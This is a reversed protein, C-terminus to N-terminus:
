RSLDAGRLIVLNRSASVMALTNPVTAVLRYGWGTVDQLGTEGLPVFTDSDYIVLTDNCVGNTQGVRCVAAFVRRRAEDIALTGIGVVRTYNPERRPVLPLTGPWGLGALDLVAGTDAYARGGAVQFTMNFPYLGMYPHSLPKGLSRGIRQSPYTNESFSMATNSSNLVYYKNGDASWQASSGSDWPYQVIAMNRVVIGNNFLVAQPDGPRVSIQQPALGPVVDVSRAIDAPLDITADLTMEPVLFRQFKRVSAVYLYRGDSSLALAGPEAATPVTALVAGTVPDVTAVTNPYTPDTMSVTAFLKQHFRDWVLDNTKLPTSLSAVTIQIHNQSGSPNSGPIIAKPQVAPDPGILPGWILTMRGFGDVLALGNSGWRIMRRTKGPALQITGSPDPKVAQFTSRPTTSGIDYSAITTGTGANLSAVFIKGQAKDVVTAGGYPLTASITLDNPDLVRGLGDYLRSGDYALAYITDASVGGAAGTERIVPYTGGAFDMSAVAGPYRTSFLRSTSSGWTNAQSLFGTFSIARPVADDLVNTAYDGRVNASTVAVTLPAGPAANLQEPFTPEVDGGRQAPNLPFRKVITLAPLSYRYIEDTGRFGAHLYQGDSSISLTSPESGSPITRLITGAVSRVGHDFQSQYRRGVRDGLVLAPRPIGSSTM